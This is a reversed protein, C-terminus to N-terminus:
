EKLADVSLPTMDDKIRNISSYLQYPNQDPIDVTSYNFTISSFSFDKESKSSIVIDVLLFPFKYSTNIVKSDISPSDIKIKEKNFIDGVSLTRLDQSLKVNNWEIIKHGAENYGVVEIDVDSKHNRNYFLTVNDLLKFMKPKELDTSKLRIRCEYVKDFDTYIGANLTVLNDNFLYVPNNNLYFLHRANFLPSEDRLWSFYIKNNFNQYMKYYLKLKMAPRVQIVQDEELINKEPWMLAYYDGTVESVCNNDEWPADFYDTSKKVKDNASYVAVRDKDLEPAQIFYLTDFFKFFLLNEAVQITDPNDSSISPAITKRRYPSYFQDSDVDDGNGQILHISGGVGKSYAFSIIFGAFYVVKILAENKNTKFSLGGRLGIYNPNDIVTKFWEGSNYDDDYFCFKNGDSFIKKCSQITKFLSNIELGTDYIVSSAQGFYNGSVRDVKFDLIKKNEEDILEEYVYQVTETETPNAQIEFNKGFSVRYKYKDADDVVIYSYDIKIASPSGDENVTAWVNEEFRTVVVWQNNVLKEWRFYYESIDENGAITMIPKLIFKNQGNVKFYLPVLASISTIAQNTETDLCFEPYPSLYNLGISNQVIGNLLKPPMVYALLEGGEDSYIEVIRTGTALYFKNNFTAGEIKKKNQFRMEFDVESSAKVFDSDITIDVNNIVIHYNLCIYYSGDKEVIMDKNYYITKPNWTNITNPDVEYITGIGSTIDEWFDTNVGPTIYSILYTETENIYRYYENDAFFYQDNTIYIGEELEYYDGIFELDDNEKTVFGNHFGNQPEFGKSYLTLGKTLNLPNHVLGIETKYFKIPLLELDITGSDSYLGYYLKGDAAVIIYSSTSTFLFIGQINKLIEPSNLRSLVKAGQRKVITGSKYDVNLTDRLENPFLQEDGFDTNMGGFFSNYTVPEDVMLLPYKQIKAPM